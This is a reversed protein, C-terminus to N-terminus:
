VAAWMCRLFQEFPSHNGQSSTYQLKNHMHQVKHRMTDRRSCSSDLFEFRCPPATTYISESRFGPNCNELDPCHACQTMLSPEPQLM